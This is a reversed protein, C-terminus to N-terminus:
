INKWKKNIKIIEALVEEVTILKMCKNDLCDDALQTCPSCTLNKNIAITNKGWPLYQKADAPGRLAVTPIALATAIHMSGSDNGVFADCKNILSILEPLGSDKVIFLNYRSLESSEDKNESSLYVFKKGASKVVKEVIDKEDPAAMILVKAKLEKELRAALQGYKEAPWCKQRWGAGPFLGVVFHDSKIGSNFFRKRASIKEEKSVTLELDTNKPKIDIAELLMLTQRVVHTTLTDFKVRINYCFGRIHTRADVGVRISAGSLLSLAATRPGSFFDIVLDYRGQRAKKILNIDRRLKEIFSRKINKRRDVSFLYDIYPNNKLIDKCRDETLAAIFAKPYSERVARIAPTGLVTDGVAHICIILIRNIDNKIIKDM